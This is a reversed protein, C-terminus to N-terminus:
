VSKQQQILPPSPLPQQQRVAKGLHLLFKAALSYYTHYSFRDYINSRSVTDSISHIIEKQVTLFVFVFVFCFGKQQCSSLIEILNRMEFTNKRLKINEQLNSLNMLISFMQCKICHVM